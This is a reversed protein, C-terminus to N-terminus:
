RHAGHAFGELKRGATDVTPQASRYALTPLGVDRQRRLEALRKDGAIFSVAQRADTSFERISANHGAAFLNGNQHALLVHAPNTAPATEADCCLAINSM